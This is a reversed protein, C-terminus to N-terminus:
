FLKITTANSETKLIFKHTFDQKKKDTFTFLHGCRFVKPDTKNRM